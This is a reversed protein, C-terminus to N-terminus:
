SCRSVHGPTCASEGAVLLERWIEIADASILCYPNGGDRRVVEFRPQGDRRDQVNVAYHPFEARLAAAQVHAALLSPPRRTRNVRQRETTGRLEREGHAGDDATQETM